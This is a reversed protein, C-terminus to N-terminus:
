KYLLISPSKQLMVVANPFDAANVPVSIAYFTTFDELQSIDLDAEIKSGSGKELITTFVSGEAGSVPQHNAYFTTKYVADPTGCIEFSLHLRKGDEVKYHDTPQASDFSFVSYVNTNLDELSLEGYLGGGIGDLKEQTIPDAGITVNSLCERVPLRVEKLSGPDQEFKIELEMPLISHYMGYSSTDVMDPRFDPNFISIIQLRLTDGKKGTVPTFLFRFPTEVDDEELHFTYMYEYAADPTDVRYPQPVGDLFLLFGVNKAAGSAEVGYDLEFEGGTFSFPLRRGSDDTRAEEGPGHSLADPLFDEKEETDFPNSGGTNESTNEPGSESDSEQADGTNRQQLDNTGGKSCGTVSLTLALVASIMLVISKRM